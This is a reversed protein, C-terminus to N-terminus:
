YIYISVMFSTDFSRMNVNMSEFRNNNNNNDNNNNNNNNNNNLNNLINMVTDLFLKILESFSFTCGVPHGM